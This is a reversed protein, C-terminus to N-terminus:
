QADPIPHGPFQSEILKRIDSAFSIEALALRHRRIREEDMTKVTETLEKQKSVLGVIFRNRGIHMSGQYFRNQDYLFVPGGSNGAFVEFDLLFSNTQQTPLLPYSAVRGSRLIPFGASNSEAGFPFGLVMLDDGPQVDFKELIADNALLATSLPAIQRLEVDQPVPVEMIALDHALDARWLNTPGQRIKIQVPVRAFGSGVRKRFHIVAAEGKMDSLVHNATVLVFKGKGSEDSFPHALIFGSGVVGNGELKFTSQMLKLPLSFDDPKTEEAIAQSQFLLAISVAIMRLM